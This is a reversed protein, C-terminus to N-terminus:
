DLRADGRRGLGDLFVLREAGIHRHLGPGPGFAGSGAARSLGARPPAAAARSASYSAAPAVIAAPAASAARSASTTSLTRRGPAPSSPPSFRPAMTTAIM